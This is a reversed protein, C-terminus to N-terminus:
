ENLNEKIYDLSLLLKIIQDESLRDTNHSTYENSDSINKEGETFYKDYNIDRNDKPIRFYKGNDVVRAM